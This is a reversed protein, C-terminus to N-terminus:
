RYQELATFLAALKGADKKGPASEVGSCLDVGSPYLAQIASVINAPDLGGAVAAPATRDRMLGRVTGWDPLKGAGGRGSDDVATFLLIDAGSDEYEQCLISMSELDVQGHGRQPINISKWLECALASKIEAVQEPSEKGLLQVAFPSLAQVVERVRNQSPNALLVVGPIPPSDFLPKAAALSLTRPSYGVDVLVGFFDAGADAALDRDAISTTGCIKVFDLAYDSPMSSHPM